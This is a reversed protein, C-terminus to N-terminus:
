EDEEGPFEGINWTNGLIEFADEFADKMSERWDTGVCKIDGEIIFRWRYGRKGKYLQLDYEKDEMKIQEM